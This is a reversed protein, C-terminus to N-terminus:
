STVQCRRWLKAPSTQGDKVRVLRMEEENLLDMYIAEGAESSGALGEYIFSHRHYVGQAERGDPTVIRPGEILLRKGDGACWEGDIADALVPASNACLFLLPLVLKLVQM